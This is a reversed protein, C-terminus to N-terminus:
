LPMIPAVSPSKRAFVNRSSHSDNSQPGADTRRVQCERIESYLNQSVDHRGAQRSHRSENGHRHAQTTRETSAEGPFYTIVICNIDLNSDVRQPFERRM